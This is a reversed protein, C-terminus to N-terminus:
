RPTYHHRGNGSYKQDGTKKKLPLCVSYVKPCHYPASEAVGKAASAVVRVPKSLGTMLDCILLFLSMLHINCTQALLSYRAKSAGPTTTSTTRTSTIHFTRRSARGVRRCPVNARISGCIWNGDVSAMHTYVPARSHYLYMVRLLHYYVKFTNLQFKPQPM